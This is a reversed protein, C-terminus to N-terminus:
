ENHVPNETTEALLTFKDLHDLIYLRYHGLSEGLTKPNNLVKMVYNQNIAMTNGRPMRQNLHGETMTRRKPNM